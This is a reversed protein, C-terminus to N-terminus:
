SEKFKILNFVLCDRQDDYKSYQIDLQDALNYNIANDVCCTLDTEIERIRLVMIHDSQKIWMIFYAKWITSKNNNFWNKGCETQENRYYSLNISSLKNIRTAIDFLENENYCEVGDLRSTIQRHVVLDVYRRLPSTCHLYRYSSLSFHESPSCSYSAKRLNRKLYSYFIDSDIYSLKTPISVKSQIRYITPIHEQYCHLGLITGMLIMAEEIILRSDLREPIYIEPQAISSIFKSQLQDIWVAGNKIRLNRILKTLENIRIIDYEESPAFDLLEEAEEYTIKYNPKVISKTLYYSKIEGDDNIEIKISLAKTGENTHFGALHKKEVIPLMYSINDILYLTSIKSYAYKDIPDDRKIYESPNTIHVWIYEKNGNREYSIADDIEKTNKDDIVYTKLSCLDLYTSNNWEGKM